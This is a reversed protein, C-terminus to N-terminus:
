IAAPRHKQLRHLAHPLVQPRSAVDNHPPTAGLGFLTLRPLLLFPMKLFDERQATNINQPNRHLELLEEYMARGEEAETVDDLYQEAFEEWGESQARCAIGGALLAFILLIVRQMM